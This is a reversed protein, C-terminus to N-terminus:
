KGEEEPDANKAEEPAAADCGADKQGADPEDLQRLLEVFRDPVGQKVVEDFADILRDAIWKQIDTGLSIVPEDTSKRVYRTNKGRTM